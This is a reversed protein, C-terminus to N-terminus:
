DGRLHDLLKKIEVGNEAPANALSLEIRAILEREGYTRFASKPWTTGKKEALGNGCGFPHWGNAPPQPRLGTGGSGLLWNV